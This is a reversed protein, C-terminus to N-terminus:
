SLHSLVTEVLKPKTCNPGGNKTLDWRVKLSKAITSILYAIVPIFKMLDFNGPLSVVFHGDESPQDPVRKSFCKSVETSSTNPPERLTHTHTHSHTHTHTHTHTYSHTHTLTHTHSHTHTHTL